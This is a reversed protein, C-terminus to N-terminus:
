LDGWAEMVQRLAQTLHSEDDYLEMLLIGGQIGRVAQGARLRAEAEPWRAAYIRVFAATMEDFYQRLLPMFSLEPELGATEVVTNAMICGGPRGMFIRGLKHVMQELRQRPDAPGPAGALAFVRDRTYDLMAALVERMLEEKGGPFYYYFHAKRLGCAEGLDAISTNFYGQRRFVQLATILIAERSTKQQAM